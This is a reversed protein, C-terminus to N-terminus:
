AKDSLSLPVDNCPTSLVNAPCVSWSSVVVYEAAHRATDSCYLLRPSVLRFFSGDHLKSLSTVQFWAKKRNNNMHLSILYEERVTCHVRFASAYLRTSPTRHPYSHPRPLSTQQVPSLPSPQPPYSTGPQPPQPPTSRTFECVVHDTIFPTKHREAFCRVSATISSHHNLVNQM